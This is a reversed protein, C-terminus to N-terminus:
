EFLLRGYKYPAGMVFTSRRASHTHCVGQVPGPDRDWSSLGAVFAQKTGLKFSRLTRTAFARAGWVRPAGGSTVVEASDVM